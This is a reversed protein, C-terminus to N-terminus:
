GDSAHQASRHNGETKQQQRPSAKLDQGPDEKPPRHAAEPGLGPGPDPDPIPSPKPRRAGPLIPGPDPTPGPGPGATAPDAEPALVAEAAPDAADEPDRAALLAPYM